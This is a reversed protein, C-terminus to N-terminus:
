LYTLLYTLLCILLDIFLIFYFDTMYYVNVNVLLFTVYIAKM